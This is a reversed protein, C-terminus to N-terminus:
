KNNFQVNQPCNHAALIHKTHSGRAVLHDREVNWIEVYTFAMTKGIKQLKGRIELNEGVKGGPNMYSTSIEVSVGTQFLGTTSIALSGGLDVLTALIGGHVSQFRNTHMFEIPLRLVCEDKEASVVKLNKFLTQEVGSTEQCETLVSSVFELRSM